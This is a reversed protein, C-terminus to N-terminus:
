PTILLHHSNYLNKIAIDTCCSLSTMQYLITYWFFSVSSESKTVAGFWILLCHAFFSVSLKSDYYFTELLGIVNTHRCEMLIEIEVMHDSIDSIEDVRIQKLAAELGDSKNM